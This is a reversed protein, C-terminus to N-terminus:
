IINVSDNLPLLKMQLSTVSSTQLYLYSSSMEKVTMEGGFASPMVSTRENKYFDVLDKRSNVPLDPLFDLPLKIFYFDASQAVVATLQTIILLICLLFKKM